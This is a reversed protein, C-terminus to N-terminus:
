KIKKLTIERTMIKKCFNDDHEAFIITPKYQLILQELQIRSLIDVYNLPEDWIYIHARECLSKAIYVKKKQGMSYSSMDMTLHERPFDLRRLVSMFLTLNLGCREAFERLGGCLGSVDQPTYSIILGQPAAGGEALLRMISSKGSGNIGSLRIREGSYVTIDTEEFVRGSGYDVTIGRLEILREKHYKLPQLKLEGAEEINKLLLSKEKVAEERRNQINKSRKMMKAAKHGIFGRDMTGTPSEQGFKRRETKDSWGATRRAATELRKIDKRLKENQGLEYADQRQKNEYWVSFSGRTLEINAKNISITYDTCADLMERDHSVLIFGSKSCLYDRVAARSALDLHDTPEDILLFGGDKIFLVALMAKTKEGGSLTEFPRRMAETDMNLLSLELELRWLEAEPALEAAIEATSKSKDRVDFPFYDFCVSASISGGHEYEGALIRLLTTKGRGNRGTLGLRWNTDLVLSVNEFVNEGGDYGFTLGSIKIQSM